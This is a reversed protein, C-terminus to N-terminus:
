ADSEVSGECWAFKRTKRSLLWRKRFLSTCTESRMSKGMQHGCFLCGRPALSSTVLRLHRFHGINGPEVRYM